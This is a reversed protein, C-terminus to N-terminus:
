RVFPLRESTLRYGRQTRAERWPVGYSDLLLRDAASQVDGNLDEYQFLTLRYTNVSALAGTREFTYLGVFTGVKTGNRDFVPLDHLSDAPLFRLLSNTLPLLARDDSVAFVQDLTLAHASLSSEVASTFDNRSLRGSGARLNELKKTLEEWDIRGAADNLCRDVSQWHLIRGKGAPKQKCPLGASATQYAGSILEDIKDKVDKPVDQSLASSVYALLLVAILASFLKSM